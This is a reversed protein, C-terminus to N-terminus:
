SKMRSWYSAWIEKKQWRAPWTPEMPFNVAGRMHGSRDEWEQRTDVLLLNDRNGSYHKWLDDTSILRYRGTKAEALVDDWTAERPTIVGITQMIDRCNSCHRM